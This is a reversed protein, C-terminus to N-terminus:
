TEDTKGIEWWPFEIETDKSKLKKLADRIEKRQRLIIEGPKGHRGLRFRSDVLMSGIARRLAEMPKMTDELM